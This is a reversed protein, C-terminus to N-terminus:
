HAGQDLDLDEIMTNWTGISTSYSQFQHNQMQIWLIADTIIATILLEVGKLKIVFLANSVWEMDM